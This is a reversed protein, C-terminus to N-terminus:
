IHLVVTIVPGDTINNKMHTIRLTLSIIERNKLKKYQPVYPGFHMSNDYATVHYTLLTNSPKGNELNNTNDLTDLNLVETIGAINNMRNIQPNKDFRNLEIKGEVLDILERRTYTGATIQKNGSEM